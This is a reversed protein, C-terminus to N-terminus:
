LLPKDGQDGQDAPDSTAPPIKRKPKILKKRLTQEFNEGTQQEHKINEARLKYYLGISGICFVVVNVINGLNITGTFHVEDFM